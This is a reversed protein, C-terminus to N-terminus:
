GGILLGIGVPFDPLSAVTSFSELSAGAGTRTKQLVSVFLLAVIAGVLYKM